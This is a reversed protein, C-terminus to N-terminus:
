SGPNSPLTDESIKNKAFYKKFALGLAGLVIMGSAGDLPVGAPGGGGQGPPPPPGQALLCYSFAITFIVLLISFKKIM